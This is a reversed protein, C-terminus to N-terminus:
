LMSGGSKPLPFFLCESNHLFFTRMGITSILLRRCTKEPCLAHPLLPPRPNGGSLFKRQKLIPLLHQPNKERGPIERQILDFLVFNHYLLRRSHFHETESERVSSDPVAHRKIAGTSLLDSVLRLTTSLCFCDFELKVACSALRLTPAIIKLRAIGCLHTLSLCTGEKGSRMQM